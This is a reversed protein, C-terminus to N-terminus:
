LGLLRALGYIMLGAGIVFFIIKIIKLDQRISDVDEVPRNFFTVFLLGTVIAGVGLSGLILGLNNATSKSL